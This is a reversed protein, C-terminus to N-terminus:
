ACLGVKKETKEKRQFLAAGQSFALHVLLKEALDGDQTLPGWATRSGTGTAEEPRM